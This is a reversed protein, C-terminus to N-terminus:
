SRSTVEVMVGRVNFRVGIGLKHRHSLKKAQKRMSQKVDRRMAKLTALQRQNIQQQIEGTIRQVLYTRAAGLALGFVRHRLGTLLKNQALALLTANAEELRTERERLTTALETTKFAITADADVDLQLAKERAAVLAQQADQLAAAADVQRQRADDLQALISARRNSLTEM